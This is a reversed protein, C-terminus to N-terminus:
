FRSFYDKVFLLFELNSPEGNISAYVKNYGILLHLKDIPHSSNSVTDFSIRYLDNESVNFANIFDEILEIKNAIKCYIILRRKLQLHKFIGDKKKKNIFRIVDTELRELNSKFFIMNKYVFSPPCEPLVLYYFDDGLDVLFNYNLEKRIREKVIFNIFEVETEGLDKYPDLVNLSKMEVFKNFKDLLELSDKRARIRSVYRKEYDYDEKKAELIIDEVPQIIILDNM